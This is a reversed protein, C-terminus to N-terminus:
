PIPTFPKILIQKDINFNLSDTNIEGLKTVRYGDTRVISPSGDVVRPNIAVNRFDDETPEHDFEIVDVAYIHGHSDYGGPYFKNRGMICLYMVAYAHKNEASQINGYDGTEYYSNTKAYMLIISYYNFYDQDHTIPETGKNFAFLVDDQITFTQLLEQESLERDFERTREPNDLPTTYDYDYDTAMPQIKDQNNSFQHDEMGSMRFTYVFKNANDGQIAERDQWFRAVEIRKYMYQFGNPHLVTKISNDENPLDIYFNYTFKYNDYEVVELRPAYKRIQSELTLVSDDTTKLIYPKSSVTKEKDGQKVKYHAIFYNKNSVDQGQYVSLKEINLLNSTLDPEDEVYIANDPLKITDNEISFTVIDQVPTDRYYNESFLIKEKSFAERGNNNDQKTRVKIYRTDVYCGARFKRPIKRLYNYNFRSLGNEPLASREYIVEFDDNTLERFLGRGSKDVVSFSKKCLLSNEKIKVNFACNFLLKIESITDSALKLNNNIFSRILEIKNETTHDTNFSNFLREGDIRSGVDSNNVSELSYDPRNYIIVLPNPGKYKNSLIKVTAKTNLYEDELDELKSVSFLDKTITFNIGISQLHNTLLHSFNEKETKQPDIVYTLDNNTTM